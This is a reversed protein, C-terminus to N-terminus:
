IGGDQIIWNNPSALLTDRGPKGAQSYKATGFSINTSLPSTTNPKVGNVIWGNYIADLNTSSFTAPTKGNLFNSFNTVKSVNWSGINRNFVPNADFMNQMTVSAATTNINWGDIGQLGTVPNTNTNAGNNFATANQFMQGFNTVGSVNWKSIDQNFIIAGNFMNLFITTNSVNWNGLPQNFKTCGAFIGQGSSGYSTVNSVNWNNISSSGGNNFNVCNMFFADLNFVIPIEVPPM